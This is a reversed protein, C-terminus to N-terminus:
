MMLPMHDGSMPLAWAVKPSSRLVHVNLTVHSGAIPMTRAMKATSLSTNPEPIAHTSPAGNATLVGSM